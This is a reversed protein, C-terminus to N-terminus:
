EPIGVEGPGQAFVGAWRQEPNYVASAADSRLTKQVEDPWAQQSQTRAATSAAISAANEANRHPALIREENLKKLENTDGRRADVDAKWDSNRETMRRIERDTAPAMGKAELAREFDQGGTIRQGARMGDEGFVTRSRDEEKSWTSGVMNLKLVPLVRATQGCKTCPVVSPPDDNEDHRLLREEVVNCKACRVDRTTRRAM